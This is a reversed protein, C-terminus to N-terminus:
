KYVVSIKSKKSFFNKFHRYFFKSHSFLKSFKICPEKHTTKIIDISFVRLMM